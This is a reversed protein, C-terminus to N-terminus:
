MDTIRSTDIFNLDADPGQKHLEHEIIPRLEKYTAPRPRVLPRTKSTIKIRETIFTTLSM